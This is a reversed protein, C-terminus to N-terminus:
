AAYAEESRRSRSRWTAASAPGTWRAALAAPLPPAAAHVEAERSDLYQGVAEPARGACGRRTARDALRAVLHRRSTRTTSCAWTTRSRARGGRHAADVRAAPLVERFSELTYRLRKGDIRLAHLAPVDAWALTAHTPASGSTRAALHSRGRHGAGAGADGPCSPWRARAAADGRLGPLGGRLRPLRPSDLLTSSRGGHAERQRRWDARLPEMAAAATRPCRRRRLRGPGRAARGPRAGHGARHGRGRLERVYRRQLRPRYAGDFVRWVARMRRTAVRMKHLEEIDEGPARARGRVALMRALHMRLVKRGAEALTDEPRSARRRPCRAAPRPDSPHRAREEVLPRAIEEKSRPEPTLLGTAELVTALRELLAEGGDSSEVELAAFRAWRPAAAHCRSRTWRDVAGRRRPRQRAGSTAGSASRSCPVCAPPAACSTWWSAHRPERAVGGPGPPDVRAGRARHAPPTAARRRSRECRARALTRDPGGVQRDADRRDGSAAAPRRLRAARAGPAAHRLLRGRGGRDGSRGLTCTAWARRGLREDLWARLAASTARGRVQARGRPAGASATARSGGAGGSLDRAGPRDRARRWRWSPRSRTSAAHARGGPDGRAAVGGDASSRGPM